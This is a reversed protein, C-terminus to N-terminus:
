IERDEGALRFLDPRFTRLWDVTVGFAIRRVWGGFKAPDSLCDLNLWARLFTEQALDEAEHRDGALSWAVHRVAREYRGILEGFACWDGTRSNEVLEADTTASM